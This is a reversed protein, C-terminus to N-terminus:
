KYLKDWDVPLVEFSDIMEKFVKNNTSENPHYTKTLITYFNPPSKGSSAPNPNVCCIVIVTGTGAQEGKLEYEFQRAEKSNISKTEISESKSIGNMVAAIDGVTQDINDHRSDTGVTTSLGFVSGDQPNKFQVSLPHSEFTKVEWNQPYNISFGGKPNSFTVYNSEASNTNPEGMKNFNITGKFVTLYLGFLLVASIVFISALIPTTLGKRHM